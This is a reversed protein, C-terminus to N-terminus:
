VVREKLIETRQSTRRTSRVLEDCRTPALLNSQQTEHVDKPCWHLSLREGVGGGGGIALSSTCQKAKQNKGLM